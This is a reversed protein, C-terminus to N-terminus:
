RNKLERKWRAVTEKRDVNKQLTLEEEACLELYQEAAEVIYRNLDLRGNSIMREALITTQDFYDKARDNQHQALAFKGYENVIIRKYDALIWKQNDNYSTDQELQEIINMGEQYLMEISTDEPVWGMGFGVTALKRYFMAKRPLIGFEIRGKENARLLPQIESENEILMELFAKFDHYIDDLAGKKKTQGTVSIIREAAQLYLMSGRVFNKKLIEKTIDYSKQYLEQTDVPDGGTVQLFAGKAVCLKSTIELLDLQKKEDMDQEALRSIHGIGDDCYGLIEEKETNAKQSDEGRKWSSQYIDKKHYIYNNYSGALILERGAAHEKLIRICSEMMKMDLNRYRVIGLEKTPMYKEYQFIADVFETEQLKDQWKRNVDENKSQFTQIYDYIFAHLYVRWFCYDKEPDYGIKGDNQKLYIVQYQNEIIQIWQEMLEDMLYSFREIVALRYKENAFTIFTGNKLDPVDGRSYILISDFIQLLMIDTKIDQGESGRELFIYEEPMMKVYATAIILLLRGVHEYYKKGLVKEMYDFYDNLADKGQFGAGIERKYKYDEQLLQVYLRFEVFRDNSFQCIKGFLKEDVDREGYTNQYSSIMGNYYKKLMERYTKRHLENKLSFDCIEDECLSNAKLEKLKQITYDTLEETEGNRSTLLIFVGDKMEDRYPIYDFINKGNGSAYIEDIGDIVLLLKLNEDDNFMRQQDLVAKLYSAFEKRGSKATLPAIEDGLYMNNACLNSRMLANVASPFEGMDNYRLSNCYYVRVFWDQNNNCLLQNISSAFATKGMGRDMQLLFIGHNKGEEREKNMCEKLWKILIPNNQYYDAQNREQEAHIEGWTWRRGSDMLEMELQYHRVLEQYFPVYVNKRKGDIYNLTNVLQCKGNYESFFFWNDFICKNLWVIEGDIIVESIDSDNERSKYFTGLNMEQYAEITADMCDDIGKSMEILDNWFNTEEEFPLAGHAVQNRWSVVNKERYLRLVNELVKAVSPLNDRILRYRQLRQAIVQWDGLSLQRRLIMRCIEEIEPTNETELQILYSFGLFVPMKLLVELLDRLELWAGSIQEDSIMQYFRRYEHQICFPFIDENKMAEQITEPIKGVLKEDKRNLM